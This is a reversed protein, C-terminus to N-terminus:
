RPTDIRLSGNFDTVVDPEGNTSSEEENMAALKSQVARQIEDVDLAPSSGAEQSGNTTAKDNEGADQQRPEGDYGETKMDKLGLEEMEQDTREYEEVTLREDPDPAKFSQVYSAALPDTMVVSFPLMKGAIASDLRSFFLRWRAADSAPMSDGGTLNLAAPFPQNVTENIADTKDNSETDFVSAKLDNRMQTLLGEVTTFRGGLTGPEVHLSLEPCELACSESKLIDRSLDEPVEVKLTIKRGRDSVAGGSKVENSRYGCDTCNTSMIVVEAFHPIRVLKMNTTTPHTCGPCPTPIEYVRNEIIEEEDDPANRIHSNDPHRAPYMSAAASYEPRIITPPADNATTDEVPADANANAGLGLAENQEPTRAYEKRSFKGARDDPSPELSSNGAPDELTMTVPSRSGSLIEQLSQIIDQVKAYVDPQVDKRKSQMADLDERVMNVLGELNTLQGRGAPVELDLEEIRVTATDSKVVQRQLDHQSGVTFTFRVGRQQIEGASQIENNQLHCHPCSFSMLIIERFFPIRTLLLRTTGQEHCNMCLSTIEDVHRDDDVDGNPANASTTSAM